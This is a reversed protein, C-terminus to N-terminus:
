TVKFTAGVALVGQNQEDIARLPYTAPSLTTPVACGGNPQDGAVMGNPDATLVCAVDNDFVTSGIQVLIEDGAPWGSGSVTLGRGPAGSAPKVSIRPKYILLTSTGKNAATDTASVTQNGAAVTTPVTFTVGSLFTGNADTGEKTPTTTLATTGLKFASVSSKAAFGGGTITVTAGPSAPAGARSGGPTLTLSPIVKFATGTATVGQHQEDIAFLTRSGVPVSPVQCATSAVTGDSSAILVCAVDTDFTTSGIQVIVEDGAPWGSGSVTLGRGPAGSVPSVAIKPKYILLTGSGTHAAGDTASVKHNGSTATTPVTFTVASPFSGTSNTTVSAPTTTVTTTDFKFTSVKSSAAFGNGQISVTAGPSAPTGAVAGAPTLVVGANVTFATGVAKVSQNQEDIAVLSRSGNPVDPVQCNGNPKNGAITGDSSATLVCVVDADFTASGIQVLIEDGAHWGGGTVVLAGGPAGSGPSVAVTPAAAAVAPTVAGIVCAVFVLGGLRRFSM